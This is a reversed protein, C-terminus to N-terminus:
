DEDEVINPHDRRHYRVNEEPDATLSTKLNNKSVNYYSEKLEVGIFKRGLRVSEYGESGIGAFPSFVVDGPNTWMQLNREIVPLQLPCIHKEDDHEKADRYKLVQSERIDDWVPSAYRQWTDISLNRPEFEDTGNYYLFEGEVPEKNEGPKRFTVVYDPIGMRSMASDKCLQKHLLGIAHTRVMAVVPNKWVLVESHYIFGSRQFLRIIDGRFDRIGIYGDRSKSTPLNMCHVSVLRGSKIIRFLGDSIFTFHEFFEADDRCNGLDRESATYTYLSSFPPSFISFDVSEDKIHPLIEVTDGHMLLYKEHVDAPSLLNAGSVISKWDSSSASQKITSSKRKAAKKKAAKKRQIVKPM